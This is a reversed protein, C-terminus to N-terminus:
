SLARLFPGMADGLRARIFLVTTYLRLAAVRRM